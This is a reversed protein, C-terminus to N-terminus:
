EREQRPPGLGPSGPQLSREARSVRNSIYHWFSRDMAKVKPRILPVHGNWFSLEKDAEGPSRGELAFLYLASALGSRDAGGLCHILVPKPAQRLLAVLDDMQELSLEEGSFLRRDYHLVNLKAATAIEAQHWGANLNEGRLNLVSRIGYHKITQALHGTYMQASRYAQGPVVTRLNAHELDSSVYGALVAVLSALMGSGLLVCRKSRSLDAFPIGRLMSLGTVWAISLTWAALVDSAQHAGLYVRSLAVSLAYLSGLCIVPWRWRTPWAVLALALSLVFTGMSHASPSGLDIGPPLSGWHSPRVQSFAAKVAFIIVAAGVVCHALFREDQQRQWLLLLIASVVTFFLVMRIDGNQTVGILLKDLGPSDHRHILELAPTDWDLGGRNWVAEALWGLGYVPLLVGFLLVLLWRRRPSASATIDHHTPNM